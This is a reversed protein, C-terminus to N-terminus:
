VTARLLALAALATALIAGAVMWQQRAVLRRYVLEQAEHDLTPKRPIALLACLWCTVPIVAYVSM